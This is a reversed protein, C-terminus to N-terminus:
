VALREFQKTKSIVAKLKFFLVYTYLKRLKLKQTMSVADYTSSGFIERLASDINDKLNTINVDGRKAMLKDVTQIVPVSHLQNESQIRLTSLLYIIQDNIATVNKNDDIYNEVREVAQKTVNLLKAIYNVESEPLKVPRIMSAKKYKDAILAITSDPMSDQTLAEKGEDTSYQLKIDGKNDGHAKYYEVAMRRFIQNLRTWAQAMVYTTKEKPNARVEKAYAEDLTKIYYSIVKLPTNYQTFISSKRMNRIVYSAVNDRCGNKFYKYQLGNYIKVMMFFLAFSRLQENNTYVGIMYLVFLVQYYSDNFMRNSSTNFEKLQRALQDETLGYSKL